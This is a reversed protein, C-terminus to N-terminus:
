DSATSQQDESLNLYEIFLNKSGTVTKGDASILVIKFVDNIDYRIMAAKDKAV